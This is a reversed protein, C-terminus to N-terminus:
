RNPEAASIQGLASETDREVALDGISVIGLPRSGEDVVPLRRVARERMLGAAHEVSDEPSLTVLEKSSIQSLVTTQPDMGEAVGLPMARM